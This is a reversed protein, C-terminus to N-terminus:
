GQVTIRRTAAARMLNEREAGPAALGQLTTYQEKTMTRRKILPEALPNRRKQDRYDALADGVANRVYGVGPLADYAQRLGQPVESITKVTRPVEPPPRDDRWRRKPQPLKSFGPPAQHSPSLKRIPAIARGSESIGWGAARYAGVYQENVRRAM